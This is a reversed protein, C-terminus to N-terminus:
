PLLLHEGPVVVPSGTQAALTRALKGPDAPDVRGAISRLTDGPQVVYSVGPGGAEAGPLSSAGDSARGGLVSVPLALAILMGAALVALTVRRRRLRAAQRAARRSAVDV